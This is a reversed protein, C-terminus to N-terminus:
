RRRLVGDRGRDPWRRVIYEALWKGREDIDCACWRQGWRQALERNLWFPSQSYAAVKESFRRVGLESNISTLTLNGLRHLRAEAEDAGCKWRGFDQRWQEEGGSQPYIHEITVEAHALSKAGERTGYAEIERLVFRVYKQRAQEYQPVELVARVVADDDQWRYRRDYWLSKTCEIRFRELQDGHNETAEHVLSDLLRGFLSRLDNPPIKCLFRRVLFSEIVSMLRLGQKSARDGTRAAYGTGDLLLAAMRLLIPEVPKSGWSRLREVAADLSKGEATSVKIGKPRQGDHGIWAFLPAQDAIKKIRTEYPESRDRLLDLMRAYTEKVPVNNGKSMVYAHFFRELLDPKCALIEEIPQWITKHIEQRRRAPSLLFFANRILDAQRLPTGTHNLTEFIQYARDDPVDEIVVLELRDRIVSFLRGFDWAMATVDTPVELPGDTRETVGDPLVEDEETDDADPADPGEALAARLFRFAPELRTSRSLQTGYTDPLNNQQHRLVRATLYDADPGAKPEIRLLQRDKQKRVLFKDIEFALDDHADGPSEDLCQRLALLILFLTLLRQQGDIIPVYSPGLAKPRDRVGTVIAGIFHSSPSSVDRYLRLIDGWLRAVHQRPSWTYPRQYDPVRFVQDNAFLDGLSGFETKLRDVM